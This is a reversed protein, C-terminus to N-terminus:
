TTVNKRHIKNHEIRSIVAINEPRDDHTIGNIHHTLEGDQLPRGLKEEAVLIARKVYKGAVSVKPHERRIYVYGNLDQYISNQKRIKGKRYLDACKRSCTLGGGNKLVCPFVEFKKECIACIREVRSSPKIKKSPYNCQKCIETPWKRRLYCQVFESVPKEQKCRVCKLIVKKMGLNGKSM